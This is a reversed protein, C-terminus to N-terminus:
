DAVKVLRQSRHRRIRMEHVHWGHNAALTRSADPREVRFAQDALKKRRVDRKFRHRACVALFSQDILEDDRERVCALNVPHQWSDLGCPFPNFRHEHHDDPDFTVLDGVLVDHPILRTHEHLQAQEIRFTKWDNARTGGGLQSIRRQWVRKEILALHPKIGVGAPSVVTHLPRRECRRQHQPKRYRLTANAIHFM